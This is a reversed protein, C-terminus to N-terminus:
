FKVPRNGRHSVAQPDEPNRLNRHVFSVHRALAMDREANAQVVFLVSWCVLRRVVIDANAQAVFLVSRGMEVVASGVRDLILFVLTWLDSLKLSNTM